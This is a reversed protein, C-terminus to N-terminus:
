WPSMRESVDAPAAEVGHSPYTVVPRAGTRADRVEKAIDTWQPKDSFRARLYALLPWFSM